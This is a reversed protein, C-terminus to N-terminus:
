SKGSGSSHTRSCRPKLSLKATRVGSSVRKTRLIDPRRLPAIGIYVGFGPKQGIQIRDAHRNRGRYGIAGARQEAFRRHRFTRSGDHQKSVGFSACRIEIRRLIRSRLPDRERAEVVRGLPKGIPFGAPVPQIQIVQQM